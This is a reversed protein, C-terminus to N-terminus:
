WKMKNKKKKLFFYSFYNQYLFLAVFSFFRFSVAFLTYVFFILRPFAKFSFAGRLVERSRCLARRGHWRPASAKGWGCHRALLCIVCAYASSRTYGRQAYLSGPLYALSRSKRQNFHQSTQSPFDANSMHQQFLNAWQDLTFLITIVFAIIEFTVTSM